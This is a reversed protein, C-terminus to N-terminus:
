EGEAFGVNMQVTGIPLQISICFTTMRPSVIHVKTGCITGPPTLRLEKGDLVNNIKSVARGAIINAAEEVADVAENEGLEEVTSRGLMHMAFLRVVPEEAYLIVRGTTYGTIGIIVAAGNVDLTRPVYPTIETEGEMKLLGATGQQLARAFPKAYLERFAAERSETGHAILHLTDVLDHKSVPKQLFARVGVAKGQTILKLDKMASIMLIRADANQILIRRSCELGNTDPLNMDMTVLDPQMETYLKLAEAADGAMGCIEFDTERLNEALMVRSIKSDDVILVRLQGM